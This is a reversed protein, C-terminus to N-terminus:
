IPVTLQAGEEKELRTSLYEFCLSALGLEDKGFMTYTKGSGTVGYALATANYGILM